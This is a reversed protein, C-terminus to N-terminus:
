AGVVKAADFLPDLQGGAVELLRTTIVILTSANSLEPISSPFTAISLVGVLERLGNDLVMDCLLGLLEQSVEVFSAKVGVLSVAGVFGDHGEESSTFALVVRFLVDDREEVLDIGAMVLVCVLGLDVLDSAHRLGVVM